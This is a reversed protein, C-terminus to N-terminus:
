WASGLDFRCENLVATNCLCGDDTERVGDLALADIRVDVVGCCWKPTANCLAYSVRARVCVCVCACVCLCVCVCVCARV